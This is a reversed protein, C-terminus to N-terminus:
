MRFNHLIQGQSICYKIIFFRFHVWILCQEKMIKLLIDGHCPLPKCGCGLEMNVLQQLRAMLDPSSRVYDEYMAICKARGYAHVKYPNGWPSPRGIFVSNPQKQWETFNLNKINVVKTLWILEFFEAESYFPIARSDDGKNFMMRCNMDAYVYSDRGELEARAKKLLAYRKATLDLAIRIKRPAQERDRPRRRPRAQYVSQRVKFSKFKVIVQQGQQNSTRDTYKPGIRHLRNIDQPQVDISCDSRIKNIVCQELTDANENSAIDIGDIRLSTRRGYQELDDYQKESDIQHNEFKTELENFKGQQSGFKTELESIKVQQCDVRAELERIKDDKAQLAQEFVDLRTLLHKVDDKTALQQIDNKLSIIDDKTVGTESDSSNSM